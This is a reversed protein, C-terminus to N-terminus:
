SQSSSPVRDREHSNGDGGNGNTWKTGVGRANEDAFMRWAELLDDNWSRHFIDVWGNRKQFRTTQPVLESDGNNFMVQSIPKAWFYYQISRAIDAWFNKKEITSIQAYL